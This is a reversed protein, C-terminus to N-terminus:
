QEAEEEDEALQAMVVYSCSGPEDFVNVNPNTADLLDFNIFRWLCNVRRTDPDVDLRQMMAGFTGVPRAPPPTRPSLQIHLTAEGGAVQDETVGPPLPLVTGDFAVGSELLVNRSSLKGRLRGLVTLDGESSLWMLNSLDGTGSDLGVSMVSEDEDARLRIAPAGSTGSANSRLLLEGNPATVEGAQVGAYRRGIGDHDDLAETFRRIDNDWRVYGLLIRWPFRLDDPGEDVAPPIQEELDLEDGPRGFELVAGEEMRRPASTGCSGTLSDTATIPQDVATLFIPYTPPDAADGTLSVVGAQRFDDRSLRLGETVVLQRGSGDIAMGPELSVEIYAVGSDTQREEPNLRLGEVIGWSHQLRDHRARQNRAYQVSAELDTAALIQGEYFTPRKISDGM